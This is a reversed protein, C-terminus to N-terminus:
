LRAALPALESGILGIQDLDSLDLIQLYARSVGIKAYAELKAAIEVPTGALGVERLDALERGITSARKACEREDRGVITTLAVSRAIESPNRGQAACAVELAEFCQRAGDIGQFPLNFEDAFSAALAPTRKLGRGGVIIPVRRQYPKPLAPCDELDYFAGHFSYTEGRPTSWLNTIIELQEELRSFRETFSGRFPIGYAAHEDAYWGAGLGLEVRGNSMADVQAVAVSLSGPYRFTAATLLTGLRIRSTERAIAGLTVWSDTPGVGPDANAGIAVYHDSRFFGDLGAAETAVAVRAQDEYTAGQQPEVFIRIQM